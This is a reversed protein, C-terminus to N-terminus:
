VTYAAVQADARKAIKLLNQTAVLDGANWADFAARTADKEIRLFRICRVEAPDSGPPTYLYRGSSTHVM